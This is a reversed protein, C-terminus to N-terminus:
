SDRPSPSTYLLCDRYKTKIAPDGGDLAQVYVLTAPADARWSFSRKGTRTSMRGKPLEEILPTDLLNTVLKGDINFIDTEPKLM